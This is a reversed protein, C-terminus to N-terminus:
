KQKIANYVYIHGAKKKKYFGHKALNDMSYRATEYVSGFFKQFDQNNYSIKPDCHHVFFKAQKTTINPNTRIISKYNLNKDKATLSGYREEDKIFSEVNESSLRLSYMLIEILKMVVYTLDGGDNTTEQVAKNLDYKFYDLMKFFSVGKLVEGKHSNRSLSILSLVMVEYTNDGFMNNSIISYVLASAKTVISAIKDSKITDVISAHIDEFKKDEFKEFGYFLKAIERPLTLKNIIKELKDYIDLVLKDEDTDPDDNGDVLGEIVSRSFTPKGGENLLWHIENVASKLSIDSLISTSSYRESISELMIAQVESYSSILRIEKQLIWPTQTLHIYTGKDFLLPIEFTFKQRYELVDEWTKDERESNSLKNYESKSLYSEDTHLTKVNKM